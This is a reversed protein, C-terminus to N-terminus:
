EISFLSATVATDPESVESSMGLTSSSVMCLKVWRVGSQRVPRLPMVSPTAPATM